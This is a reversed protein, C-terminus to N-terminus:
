VRTMRNIILLGVLVSGTVYALLKQGTPDDLLFNFTQPSNFYLWGMMAAPLAAVFLASTRPQATLTQVKQLTTKHQQMSRGLRNLVEALQGGSELNLTVAVVFYRLRLSPVRWALEALLETMPIGIQQREVLRRFEDGVPGTEAGAVHEFAQPLSSGASIARAIMELAVPFRDEFQEIRRQELWRLLLWPLVTSALLLGAMVGPAGWGRLLFPVVVLMVLWGTLVLRSGKEGLLLQLRQWRQRLGGADLARFLQGDLSTHQESIGAGISALRAKLQKQRPEERALLWGLLVLLGALLVILWWLTMSILTTDGVGWEGAGDCCSDCAELGSHESGAEM